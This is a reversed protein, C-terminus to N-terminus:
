MRIITEYPSLLEKVHFQWVEHEIKDGDSMSATALARVRKKNGMLVAMIQSMDIIGDKNADFHDAIKELEIKNM